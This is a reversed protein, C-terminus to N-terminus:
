AAASFAKVHDRNEAPAAQPVLMRFVADLKRDIQTLHNEVATAGTSGTQPALVATRAFLSLSRAGSARAAATLQAFEEESVRFNVLKNRRNRDEM